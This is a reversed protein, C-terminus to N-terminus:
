SKKRAAQAAIRRNINWQQAISLVTNTVWYLVLGAPFKLFMFTFIVPMWMMMQAQAPDSTAMANLKYSNSVGPSANRIADVMYDLPARVNGETAIVRRQECFARTM